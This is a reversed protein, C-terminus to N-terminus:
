VGLLSVVESRSEPSDRFVGLLCNTKMMSSQQNVGRSQMCSHRGEVYVAIGKPNMTKNIANAIQMTMREQLQLRRSYIEVIRALKSVGIVRNNNPLYAIHCKGSFQLCHHECTSHYVIDTVAVIQDSEHEFTKVIDSVSKEYGGYLEKWSRVVRAPTEVLGERDPNEGILELMRRVLSMAEDIEAKTELM